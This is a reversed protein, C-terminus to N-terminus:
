PFTVRVDEALTPEGQIPRRAFAPPDCRVRGEAELRLVVERYNKITYKTGEHSKFFLEKLSWTQGSFRQVLDDALSTTPKKEFLGMQMSAKPAYAFSAVGDISTSSVKAM